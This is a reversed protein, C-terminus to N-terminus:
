WTLINFFIWVTLLGHAEQERRVREEIEERAGKGLAMRGMVKAYAGSSLPRQAWQKWTEAQAEFRKLATSVEAKIDLDGLISVHHRRRLHLHKTGIV